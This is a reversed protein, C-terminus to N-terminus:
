PLAPVIFRLPGLRASHSSVLFAPLSSAPRILLCSRFCHFRVLRSPTFHLGPRGPRAVELGFILSMGIGNFQPVLTQQRSDRPCQKKRSLSSVLLRGFFNPQCQQCNVSIHFSVTGLRPFQLSSPSAMGKINISRHVNNDPATIRM